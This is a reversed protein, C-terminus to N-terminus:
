NWSLRKATLLHWLLLLIDAVCPWSGSSNFYFQPVVPEVLGKKPIRLTAINYIYRLDM